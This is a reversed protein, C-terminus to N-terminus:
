GGSRFVGGEEVCDLGFAEEEAGLTVDFVVSWVSGGSKELACSSNPVLCSDVSFSSGPDAPAPGPM